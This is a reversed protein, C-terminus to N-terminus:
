TAWIGTKMSSWATRDCFRSKWSCSHLGSQRFRTQRVPARLRAQDFRGVRNCTTLEEDSLTFASATHDSCHRKQESEAVSEGAARRAIAQEVALSSPDLEAIQLGQSFDSHFLVCCDNEGYRHVNKRADGSGQFLRLGIGRCGGPM